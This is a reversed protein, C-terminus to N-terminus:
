HLGHHGQAYEYYYIARFRTDQNKNTGVDVSLRRADGTYKWDFDQGFKESYSTSHEGVHAHFRSPTLIKDKEAETDSM